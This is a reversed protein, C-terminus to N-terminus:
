SRSSADHRGARDRGDALAPWAASRAAAAAAGAARAGTGHGPELGADDIM